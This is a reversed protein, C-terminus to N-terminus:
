PLGVCFRAPATDLATPASATVRGAYGGADKTLLLEVHGDHGDLLRRPVEVGLTAEYGPDRL